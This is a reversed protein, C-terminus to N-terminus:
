TNYYVINNNKDKIIQVHIPFGILHILVLSCHVEQFIKLVQTCYIDVWKNKHFNM